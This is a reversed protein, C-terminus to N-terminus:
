FDDYSILFTSIAFFFDYFDNRYEDQTTSIRILLTSLIIISWFLWFDHFRDFIDDNLNEFNKFFQIFGNYYLNFFRM